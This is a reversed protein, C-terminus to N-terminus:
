LNRVQFTNAKEGTWSIVPLGIYNAFQLLYQTQATNDINQGFHGMYLLVSVSQNGNLMTECFMNLVEQPNFYDRLTGVKDGKVHDINYYKELLFDDGTSAKKNNNIEVRVFNFFVGWSRRYNLYGTRPFIIGVYLKDKELSTETFNLCVLMLFVVIISTPLKPVM